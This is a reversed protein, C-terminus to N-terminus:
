VVDGVTVLVTNVLLHRGLYENVVETSSISVLGIDVKGPINNDSLTLKVTTRIPKLM